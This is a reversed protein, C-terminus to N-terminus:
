SNPSSRTHLGQQSLCSFYMSTSSVLTTVFSLCMASCILFLEVNDLCPFRNCLLTSFTTIFSHLFTSFSCFKFLMTIFPTLLSLLSMTFLTAIFPTLLPFIQFFQFHRLSSSDFRLSVTCKVSETERREEGESEGREGERTLLTRFCPRTPHCNITM